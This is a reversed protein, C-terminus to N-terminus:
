GTMPFHNVLGECIYDTRWLGMGEDWGVRNAFGSHSVRKHRKVWCTSMFCGLVGGLPAHFVEGGVLVLLALQPGRHQLEPWVRVRSIQGGVLGDDRGLVRVDLGADLLEDADGEGCWRPMTACSLVHHHQPMPDGRARIDEACRTDLTQIVHVVKNDIRSESRGARLRSVRAFPRAFGFSQVLGFPPQIGIPLKIGICSRHQRKPSPRASAKTHQM